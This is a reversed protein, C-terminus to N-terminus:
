LDTKRLNREFCRSFGTWETKHCSNKLEEEFANIKADMDDACHLIFAELIKPRKAAGFEYEGHHSILCHKLLCCLNEPFDPLKAAEKAILEAGIYSHGLLKGVDTYDNYPFDSLEYVKGIDHLIAITILLDRNVNKHRGSMFDCIQAVSLTHELLGGIYSHHMSKAASRSHLAQRIEEDDEIIAKLLGRMHPNEVSEIFRLLGDFLEEIDKEAVAAYDSVDYEDDSSKRLRTIKLQFNDRYLTVFGDIKVYDYEDFNQIDPTFDWIKADIAGTKDCLKLSMYEKGAASKLTEKRRCLYHGIVRDGERLDAIYKL